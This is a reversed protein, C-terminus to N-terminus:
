LFIVAPTGTFTIPQGELSSVTGLRALEPLVNYDPIIHYQVIQKLLVPQQGLAQLLDADLAGIAANTPALLTFPGAISSTSEFSLPIIIYDYHYICHIYVFMVIFSVTLCVMLSVTATMVEDPKTLICWKQQQKRQKFKYSSFM